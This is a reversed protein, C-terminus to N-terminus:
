SFSFRLKFRLVWTFDLHKHRIRTILIPPETTTLRPGPETFTGIQFSYHPFHYLLAGLTRQLLACVHVCVYVICVHVYMHICMCACVHVYVCMHTCM